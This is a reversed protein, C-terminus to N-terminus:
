SRAQRVVVYIYIHPHRLYILRNRCELKIEDYERNMLKGQVIDNFHRSESNIAEQTIFKEHSPIEALLFVRLFGLQQLDIRSIASRHASRTADHGM